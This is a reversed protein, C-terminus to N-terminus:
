IGSLNRFSAVNKIQNKEKVIKSIHMNTQLIIIQVKTIKVISMLNHNINNSGEM